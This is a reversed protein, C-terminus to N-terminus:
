GFLQSPTWLMLVLFVGGYGAVGVLWAGKREVRVGPYMWRLLLASLLLILVYSGTSLLVMSNALGVGGAYFGLPWEVVITALIVGNFVWVHANRMLPEKALRKLDSM